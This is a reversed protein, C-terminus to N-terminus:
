PAAEKDLSHTREQDHIRHREILRDVLRGANVRFYSPIGPFPVPVLPISHFQQDIVTADYSPADSESASLTTDIVELAKSLYPLPMQLPHENWHTNTGFFFYEHMGNWSNRASMEVHGGLLWEIPHDQSFQILRRLSDPFTAWDEVFLMGPYLTDGTFLLRQEYDYIAVSDQTHGPAPILELKRNGISFTVTEKPWTELGFYQQLGDLDYEPSKPYPNYDSDPRYGLLEVNSLGIFHRHGGFHDWHSHTSIVTLPNDEILPLIYPKLDAYGTGSDILLGGAIGGDARTDLLLYFFNGEYSNGLSERFIITDRDYAWVLYDRDFATWNTPFGVTANVADRDLQWRYGPGDVVTLMGADTNEICVVFQGKRLGLKSKSDTGIKNRVVVTEGPVCPRNLALGSDSEPNSGLPGLRTWQVDIAGQRDNNAMTDNVTTFSLFLIALAIPKM